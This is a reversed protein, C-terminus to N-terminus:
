LSLKGRAWVMMIVLAAFFLAYVLIRFFTNTRRSAATRRRELRESEEISRLTREMRRMRRELEEIKKETDAL